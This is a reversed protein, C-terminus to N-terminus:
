LIGMIGNLLTMVPTGINSVYFATKYYERYLEACKDFRKQLAYKYVKGVDVGCSFARSGAGKLIIVKSGPHNDQTMIEKMLARSLFEDFRNHDYPNNIHLLVGFGRRWRIITGEPNVKVGNMGDAFTM